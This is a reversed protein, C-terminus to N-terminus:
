YMLCIQYGDIKMGIANMTHSEGYVTSQIKANWGDEKKDVAILRLDTKFDVGSIGNLKFASEKITWCITAKEQDAFDENCFASVDATTMFKHSLDLVRQNVFEIDMGVKRNLGVIVGVLNESHSISFGIQSGKIFPKKNEAIAISKLDLEPLLMKLVYRGALHQKRKQLHSIKNADYGDLEFFDIPEDMRWLAWNIHENINQQYLLPM